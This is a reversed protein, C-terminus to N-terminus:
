NPFFRESSKVRTLYVFDKAYFMCFDDISLERGNMFVTCSFGGDDQFYPFFVVCDNFALIEPSVTRDAGRIAGLYFAGPETAALVYMLSKLVPVTYGSNEVFTVTNAVGKDTISSAFPNVTVDVGSQNSRYNKGAYVSILATALNRIWDLSFFLDYKQSLVGQRGNDKVSVTEKILPERKLLGGSLPEVLGDAIWKVFGASSLFLKKDSKDSKEINDFKKGTSIHVLECNEDYMADETYIINPIRERIVACMQKSSHYMQSDVIVYNWPIKTETITIVDEFSATYFKEFPMGTPVGRAAYNGFIVLDALATKGQPTFQIFVESDRMFYYRIRLPKGSNKDRILVWSGSADGPFVEQEETVMQKDSYVNVKILARPSVFINFTKDNEELRIQFKEGNENAKIESINFRVQELPATFWSEEYTKRLESSDPIGLRNYAAFLSFSLCVALILCVIKKM